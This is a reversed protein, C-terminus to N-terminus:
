RLRMRVPRTNSTVRPMRKGAEEDHHEVHIYITGMRPARTIEIAVTTEQRLRSKRTARYECARESV